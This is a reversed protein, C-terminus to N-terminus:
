LKSVNVHYLSASVIQAPPMADNCSFVHNM